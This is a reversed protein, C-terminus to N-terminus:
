FKYQISQYAIRNENLIRRMKLVFIDNLFLVEVCVNAYTYKLM